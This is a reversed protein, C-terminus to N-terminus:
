KFPFLCSCSYLDVEMDMGRVCDCLLYIYVIYMSISLLTWRIIMFQLAGVMPPLFPFVTHCRTARLKFSQVEYVSSWFEILDSIYQVQM